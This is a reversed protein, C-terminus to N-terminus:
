QVSAYCLDGLSANTVHSVHAVGLIGMNRTFDVYGKRTHLGTRRATTQTPITAISAVDPQEPESGLGSGTTVTRTVSDADGVGVAVGVGVTEGVNLAGACFSVGVAAGPTGTSVEAIAVTERAEISAFM